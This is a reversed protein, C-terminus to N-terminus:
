EETNNGPEDDSGEMEIELREETSEGQEAEQARLIDSKKRRAFDLIGDDTAEYYDIISQLTQVAQFEDGKVLYLDSLLIFAKAMWYQHPTNMDIFEFIVNEADEYEKRIFQLEAVRYKSEAGELSSVETAVQRFEEVALAFRDQALFSKAIKFRAERVLEANIKEERILARAVPIVDAYEELLYHCRM